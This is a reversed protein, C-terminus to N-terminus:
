LKLIVFGLIMLLFILCNTTKLFQFKLRIYSHSTQLGYNRILFLFIQKLTLCTIEKQKDWLLGLVLKKKKDKRFIDVKIKCSDYMSSGYLLQSPHLSRVLIKATVQSKEADPLILARHINLKGSFHLSVDDWIGPLYHEKEKDIGGAAQSPLWIRDGVRILIENKDGFKLYSTIPFDIPTYCEMSSGVDMGNVYIQTVYQSKKLCIVVEQTEYKKPIFTEKKYWSYKPKYDIDMLNHQAKQISKEPTQFFKDYEDIRPTALHVLGPVKITRSFKTPPFAHQTQEFQWEGNLSINDPKQAILLSSYFILTITLLSKYIM